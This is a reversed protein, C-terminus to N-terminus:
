QGILLFCLVERREAFLDDKENADGPFLPLFGREDNRIAEVLREALFELIHITFEVLATLLVLSTVVTTVPTGGDEEEEDGRAVIARPM